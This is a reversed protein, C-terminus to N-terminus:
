KNYFKFNVPYRTGQIGATAVGGGWLHAHWLLTSQSFNSSSYGEIYTYKLVASASQVSVFKTSSFIDELNNGYLNQDIIINGRTAAIVELPTSLAYGLAFGSAKVSQNQLGNPANGNASIELYGYELAVGEGGGIWTMERLEFYKNSKLISFKKLPESIIPKKNLNEQVQHAFHNLGSVILGTAAGQWFNGGSLEAGLGGALTGSLFLL